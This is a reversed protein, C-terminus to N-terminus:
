YHRRYVIHGHYCHPYAKREKVHTERPRGSPNRPNVISIIHPPHREGGRFRIIRVMMPSAAPIYDYSIGVHAPDVHVYPAVRVCVLGNYDNTGTQDGNFLATNYSCAAAGNSVWGLVPVTGLTEAGLGSNSTIFGTFNGGGFM